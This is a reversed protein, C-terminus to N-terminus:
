RGGCGEDARADREEDEVREKWSRRQIRAPAVAESACATTDTATAM